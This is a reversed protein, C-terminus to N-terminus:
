LIYLALEDSLLFNPNYLRNNKLILKKEEVLIKARQKQEKNLISLDVGLKSRFGLLVRESRLDDESLKEIDRYIPDKIYQNPDTLSYYREDKLFGVAGSGIGIYDEGMWYGINHRSQYEGFNSIEYQNFRQKIKKIFWISMDEDDLKIDELEYFKTGKEITLSYASLHDIPLSFTENLDSRLLEKTDLATDYILDLSIHDFGLEKASNIADIADFKSHSRNLFKLKKEDFSQVGFSVRNVGLERMGKLWKPTASNPNAETTIEIDKKLFPEILEFFEYYYNFDVSSPTGGGIFLTKISNKQIDFREIEKLFQKIIARM